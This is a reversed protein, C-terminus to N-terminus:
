DSDDGPLEFGGKIDQQIQNTTPENGEQGTDGLNEEKQVHEKKNKSGDRQMRPNRTTPREVPSNIMKLVEEQTMPKSHQEGNDFPKTPVQDKEEEYDNEYDEDYDQEEGKNDEYYKVPSSESHPDQASSLNKTDEREETIKILASDQTRENEEEPIVDRPVLNADGHASYPAKQPNGFMGDMENNPAYDEAPQNEPDVVLM